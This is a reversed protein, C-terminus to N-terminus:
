KKELYCNERKIEVSDRADQREEGKRREAKNKKKGVNKEPNRKIKPDEESSRKGQLLEGAL